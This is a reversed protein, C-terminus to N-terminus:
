VIVHSSSEDHESSQPQLNSCAMMLRNCILHTDSEYRLQERDGQPRMQRHLKDQKRPTTPQILALGPEQTNLM